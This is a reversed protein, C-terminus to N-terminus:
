SKRFWCRKGKAREGVMDEVKEAFRSVFLEMSRGWKREWGDCVAFRM